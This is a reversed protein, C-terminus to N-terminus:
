GEGWRSLILSCCNGDFGVSNILGNRIDVNKNEATAGRLPFGEEYQQLDKIGPLIGQRMAEILMIVQISGSAGLAEGLASKTATIPLGDTAEKFVSAIAEAENRDVDISGNGSASLADIESGSLAADSLALAISHAISDIARRRDRGRSYDFKRGHGKIEALVRANRAEATETDELMIFAAGEALAFGNRRADFPIPFEGGGDEAKCLLNARDFGFFAEFCLEDAGGALMANSRGIIIQEAAYAIAELGSNIGTMITSNIGRLKHWIAAQGAAANLVSNAFDMPRVYGPGVTLGRRDFEAVTHMCGYMTGLVIGVEESARMDLTWGSNDLAMQAASTVMQGIRDLPNINVQGLYQKANFSNLQGARRCRIAETLSTGESEPLKISSLGSKGECMAAFAQSPSDGLSTIIGYGTIVVKRRSSKM